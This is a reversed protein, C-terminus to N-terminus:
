CLICIHVQCINEFLNKNTDSTSEEFLAMFIPKYKSAYGQPVHLINESYSMDYLILFTFIGKHFLTHSAVVQEAEWEKELIKTLLLQM